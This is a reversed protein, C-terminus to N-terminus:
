EGEDFLNLQRNALGEYHLGSIKQLSLGNDAADGGSNNNFVIYLPVKIELSKKQIDVLEAESYRYLTRVERWEDGDTRKAQVWGAENRGHLRIFAKSATVRNIYPVTSEGVQPQDVITHIYRQQELFHFMEAQVLKDYWSAHRFEIAVEVPLWARIKKLYAINKASCTFYPPFQFLIFALKNAKTMPEFAEMFSAFVEKQQSEDLQEVDTVDHLTMQRNAKVIFEFTTPTRQVWREVSSVRPIAYFSTDVEVVPFYAAYDELQQRQPGHYVRPHDTWGTLGIKWMM